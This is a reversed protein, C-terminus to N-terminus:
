PAPTGPARLPGVDVTGSNCSALGSVVVLLQTSDGPVAVQLANALPCTTEGDTPVDSWFIVFQSAAGPPLVFTSPGAFNGAVGGGAVDNTPLPAGGGDLLQVTVYGDLACAGGSTNVLQLTAELTGAAGQGDVYSATLQSSGCAMPPLQIPPPVTQGTAVGTVLAALGSALVLGTRWMRAFRNRTLV